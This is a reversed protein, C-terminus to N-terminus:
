QPRALYVDFPEVAPRIRRIVESSWLSDSLLTFWGDASECVACFAYRHYADKYAELGRKSLDGELDGDPDQAAPGSRLGFSEEAFRAFLERLQELNPRPLVVCRVGGMRFPILHESCFQAVRPVHSFFDLVYPLDAVLALTVASWIEAAQAGLVPERSETDMLELGVAKIDPGLDLAQVELSFPPLELSQGSPVAAGNSSM